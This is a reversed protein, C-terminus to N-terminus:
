FVFFAGDFPAPIATIITPISSKKLLLVTTKLILPEDDIILVKEPTM